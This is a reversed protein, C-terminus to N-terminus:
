KPEVGLFAAVKAAISDWSFHREYARLSKEQLESLLSRDKLVRALATGLAAGDRYPVLVLGADAIPTNEAEGAYAIIPLGCAIGAIASGRRPYVRGRVCLMADAGTLAACVEEAPVLGLNSFEIPINELTRSIEESAENTGRGIFTLRFEAGKEKAVSAARSIDDLEERLIPMGSLCFIVISREENVKPLEIEPRTPRREPINAGIPVFAAKPDGKSLWAITPLPAPFISRESQGYLKRIVWNQCAGRVRDIARSGSL